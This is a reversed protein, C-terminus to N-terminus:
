GQKYGDILTKSAEDHQQISKQAMEYLRQVQIMEIMTQVTNVNSSEIAGPVLRPNEQVKAEGNVSYLNNGTKHFDGNYIGIQGLVKNGSSIEGNPTVAFKGASAQMKEGRSNLVPQGGQTVVTGDDSLTFAGSRTYRVGQPTQVAFMGEATDIAVDMPNNTMLMSGKEFVTFTGIPEPGSPMDGIPGGNGGNARLHQMYSEKFSIEDRKFGSASANALNNTVVDLWQQCAVMGTASTYLGRNM